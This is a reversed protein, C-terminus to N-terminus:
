KKLLVVPSQEAERVRGFFNRVMDYKEAPVSTRNLKLERTFILYEGKVEYNASYKGFATELSTADPVEDVVFGQPLKINVREAYSTSDVMYPHMRKGESFSLRDLRGIVAPKFVMLRNQMIQAYSNASFEVDLDFNGDLSNDKPVIKTTKAGSVGRSIWGEIKRNYDAVSLGRMEARFAVAAQGITKESVTGAVGGDASLTIDVNRQLMNMEPPTVPMQLLSDSDRNDILALSGQEKEPLDGVQTYPDTPDFIILRGLKPHTVVSAVKTEDRVKIAIICHNFQHPSAWEARVYTPDDATISVLYAPIKVVSLM